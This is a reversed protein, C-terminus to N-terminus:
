FLEGPLGFVNEMNFGNLIYKPNVVDNKKMRGKKGCIDKNHNHKGQFSVVFALELPDCGNHNGLQKRCRDKQLFKNSHQECTQDDNSTINLTEIFFNSCISKLTKIVLYEEEMERDIDKLQDTINKIEIFSISEVSSLNNYLFTHLPDKAWTPM